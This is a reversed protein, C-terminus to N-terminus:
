PTRRGAFSRSPHDRTVHFANDLDLGAPPPPATIRGKVASWDLVTTSDRRLEAESTGESRDCVPHAHM